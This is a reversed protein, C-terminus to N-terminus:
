SYRKQASDEWAITGIVVILVGNVSLWVEQPFNPIFYFIFTQLVGVAALWVKRSRILSELASLYGPETAKMYVNGSAKFASDEWAITVIVAVLLADVSLWLEKPLTTFSFIVSQLLAVIALWFKRGMLLSKWANLM